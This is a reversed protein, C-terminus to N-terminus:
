GNRNRLLNTIGSILEDGSLGLFSVALSLPISTFAKSLLAFTRQRFSDLLFLGTYDSRILWEGVFIDLLSALLSGFEKEIDSQTALSM